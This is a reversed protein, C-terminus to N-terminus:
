PQFLPEIGRPIVLLKLPKALPLKPAEVSFLGLMSCAYRFLRAAWYRGIACDTRGNKSLVPGIKSTCSSGSRNQHCGPAFASLKIGPRTKRAAPIKQQRDWFALGPNLLRDAVPRRARACAANSFEDPSPLHHAPSRLSARAIHSARTGRTAASVRSVAASAAEQQAAMCRDVQDACSRWRRM